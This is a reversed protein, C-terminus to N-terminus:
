AHNLSVDVFINSFVLGRVKEKTVPENKLTDMEDNAQVGKADLLDIWDKRTPRSYYAYM